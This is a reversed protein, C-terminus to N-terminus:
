FELSTVLHELDLFLSNLFLFDSGIMLSKTQKSLVRYHVVIAIHKWSAEPISDMLLRKGLSELM